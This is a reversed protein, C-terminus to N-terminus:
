VRLNHKLDPLHACALATITALGLYLGHDHRFVIAVVITAAVTWLRGVGPHDLYRWVAVLGLVPLVIKPYNYLAPYYAVAM